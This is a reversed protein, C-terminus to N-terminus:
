EGQLELSKPVRCGVEWEWRTAYVNEMEGICKFSTEAFPLIFQRFNPNM